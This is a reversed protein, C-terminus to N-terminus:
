QHQRTMFTRHVPSGVPRNYMVSVRGGTEGAPGAGVVVLVGAAAGQWRRVLFQALRKSTLHRGLQVVVDPQLAGWWSTEGLLLLDLHHVLCVGRSSSIDGQESGSSSLPGCAPWTDAPAQQLGVRLGSLVDTVVPWGLAAGLAVADAADRSDMLEGVVLLGRQASQLQPLLGLVEASFGAGGPPGCLAGSSFGASEPHGVVGGAGSFPASGALWPALGASYAQPDWAAAAPALPEQFQLNLHVPGPHAATAYRLATDLTTLLARGPVADSPPPVDAAWRTFSGFLKVQPAALLLSLSLFPLDSACCYAQM